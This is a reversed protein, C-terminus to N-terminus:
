VGPHPSGIYPLTLDFALRSRKSELNGRGSQYGGGRCGVSLWRSESPPSAGGRVDGGARPLATVLSTWGSSCTVTVRGGGSCTDRAAPFLFTPRGARIATLGRCPAQELFRLRALGLVREFFRRLM